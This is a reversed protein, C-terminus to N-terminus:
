VIKQGTLIEKTIRYTTGFIKFNIKKFLPLFKSGYSQFEESFLLYQLRVECADKSTDSILITYLTRSNYNLNSLGNDFKITHGRFLTIINTMCM